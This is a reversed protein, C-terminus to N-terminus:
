APDTLKTVAALSGQDGAVLLSQSETLRVDPDPVATVEGSLYDRLAVVSIAHQRPLELERLTRGVWRGPMAMELIALGEGLGIYDIIAASVARRVLRQASEREPFVTSDVGIKGLIRAHIESVVKVHIRASGLNRLEVAALVSATVDDGTSVLALDASAAGLHELVDPDTGDGILATGLFGSVREVKDRDSDVAAVVHGMDTLAQAAAAGFSGLGVVVVRKASRM